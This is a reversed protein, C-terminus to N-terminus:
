LPQLHKMLQKHPKENDGTTNAAEEEENNNSKDESGSKVNVEDNQLEDGDCDFLKFGKNILSNTQQNGDRWRVGKTPTILKLLEKLKKPSQKKKLQDRFAKIKEGILSM